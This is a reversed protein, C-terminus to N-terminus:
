FELRPAFVIRKGKSILTYTLCEIAVLTFEFVFREDNEYKKQSTLKEMFIGNTIYASLIGTAIIGFRVRSDLKKFWADFKNFSTAM